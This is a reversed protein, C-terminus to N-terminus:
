FNLINPQSTPSSVCFSLCPVFIGIIPSSHVFKVSKIFNRARLGLNIFHSIVTKVIILMLIGKTPYNHEDDMFQRYSKKSLVETVQQFNVSLFLLDCKLTGRTEETLLLM